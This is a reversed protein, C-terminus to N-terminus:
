QKNINMLISQYHCVYYEILLCYKITRLIAVYTGNFILLVLLHSNNYTKNMKQM